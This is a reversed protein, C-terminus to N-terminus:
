KAGMKIEEIEEWLIEEQYAMKDECAKLGRNYVWEDFIFGFISGTIVGLWDYGDPYGGHEADYVEIMFGLTVGGYAVSALFRSIAGYDERLWENIIVGGGAGLLIHSIFNKDMKFEGFEFHTSPQTPTSFLILLYIV